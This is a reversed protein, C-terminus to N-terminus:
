QCAALHLYRQCEEDTMSRTLRSRALTELDAPDLAWVRATRDRSTSLLRSGDPSFEVDYVAAAHGRLTMPLASELAAVEWLKITSDIGATALWRGDASFDVGYIPSTHGTLTTRLEGTAADWVWATGDNSSTVILRGDPSWAARQVTGGHGELTMLLRGSPLEWIKATKDTSSTIMRGGDPSFALGPVEEVHGGVEVILSGNSADWVQAGDAYTTAIATEDPTWAAAFITSKDTKIEQLSTGTTPDWIGAIGDASGSLLRSGDSSFQLSGIPVADGITWSAVQDGSRADRVTITGDVGGYALRGGDPSWAAVWIRDGHPWLFWERGAAPGTDWIRGTGDGGATALQNGDFSFAIAFVSAGHGPIVQLQRGTETQWIRVTGDAGSTAFRSGDPDFSVDHVLSSHGFGTWLLAGTAADFAKVLTDYDVTVLRTSDPSLAAAAVYGLPETQLLRRGTAVDWIAAAAVGGEQDASTATVLRTGTADFAVSNVQAADDAAQVEITRIADGTTADWIRVTDDISSTAVLRGDPSFVAGTVGESHGRLTMHAAGTGADLLEVSSGAVLALMSGDPNFALGLKQDRVGPAGVQRRWSENGSEADWVGAAGTADLLAIQRASGDIAVGIVQEEGVAFRREILSRNVSRHLAEQAELLPTDGPGGGRDVADLALLVSREPDTELNLIAANSLERVTARTAETSAQQGFAAAAVGLLAAVGLAGALIMARRRLRRAAQAAEEGRRRETDALRKTAELERERQTERDLVERAAEAQSAIVFAQELDNLTTADREALEGAQALRAGRYLAGPDQGLLEWEQAAETVQRRIRLEERDETLWDRLTPWERILAEHAVEATGEGLTVLRADALHRLVEYAASGAASGAHDFETLRVRRRTDATGEGLETLRLFVQRAITQQDASLESSYVREATKAIAGNVAGSEFYSKLTMVTGRRRNWTELLAHSLLPLAGPEDGVDRLLLDVLGPSFSWGARRAPEEIAARLEDVDMPGIFEQHDAVARRLAAYPGLQSYFDARLVIVVCRDGTPAQDPWAAIAEVFRRREDEDHCLTFVEEFQDVVLLRPEISGSRAQDFAEMPRAGPVILQIADAGGPLKPRLAPILGARVVSSKGSGSAGVVAIFPEEELRIALREVTTARGFFRDTDDEQFSLLGQYPPEGPAPPQEAAEGSRLPPFTDELGDAALQYLQVAEAFDKLRHAGLDTLGVGESLADSAMGRTADSVLVQGGHGIAGIRAARHVELGVYGTRAVLAEGTHIAMRVRVQSGDPWEHAALHRQAEVACEVADTPRPFAVFFSDGQTDVEFGHWREFCARLIDRHDGLVTAYGDRLLELLRTSGEIDTFLFTVTGGPLAPDGHAAAGPRADRGQTM